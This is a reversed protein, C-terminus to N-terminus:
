RWPTRVGDFTVTPVQDSYAEIQVLDKRRVQSLRDMVTGPPPRPGVRHPSSRTELGPVSSPDPQEHPLTHVEELGM